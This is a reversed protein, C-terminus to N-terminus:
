SFYDGSIMSDLTRGAINWPLDVPSSICGGKIGAEHQKGDILLPVSFAPNRGFRWSWSVLEATDEASRRYLDDEMGINDCRGYGFSNILADAAADADLGASIEALCVVPSSVSPVGRGHIGPLTPQLAERLLSLDASILLTGHHLARDKMLRYASGSFKRGKYVLDNRGTVEGSIGLGELAALVKRSNEFKDFSAGPCIFAFNLNGPDHYVAGGGTYRRVLDLGTRSIVSLSCEQFINQSRGVVVCPRNVYLLLLEEAADGQELLYREAALNAFPDTSLLRIVRM